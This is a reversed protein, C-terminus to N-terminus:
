IFLRPRPPGDEQHCTFRQPGDEAEPPKPSQHRPINRTSQHRRHAVGSEEGTFVAPSGGDDPSGRSTGGCLIRAFEAIEEVLPNLRIFTSAVVSEFFLRSM